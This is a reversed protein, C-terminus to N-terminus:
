IDANDETVATTCQTILSTVLTFGVILLIISVLKNTMVFGKKM